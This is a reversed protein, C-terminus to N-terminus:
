GPLSTDLLIIAWSFLVLKSPRLPRCVSHTEQKTAIVETKRKREEMGVELESESVRERVCVCM